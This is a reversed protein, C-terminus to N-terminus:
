QRRGSNGTTTTLFNGDNDVLSGDSDNDNNGDGTAAEAATM